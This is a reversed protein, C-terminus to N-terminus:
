FLISKNFLKELLKNNELIDLIGYIKLQQKFIMKAIASQKKKLLILKM